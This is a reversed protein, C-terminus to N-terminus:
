AGRKGRLRQIHDGVSMKQKAQSRVPPNPPYKYASKISHLAEHESLGLSLARPLLDNEARAQEYGYDNYFRACVHVTHNRGKGFLHGREIFDLVKQPLRTDVIEAPIPRTIGHERAGGLHAWRKEFDAYHFRAGEIGDAVECVVGGREPKTNVSGPLRMIRALEAVNGDGGCGVAMGKLTRKVNHRNEDTIVLPEHLVWYAHFGGGSSVIMTPPCLGWIRWYADESNDDLDVYLAPLYLADIETGRQYHTYTRGKDSTRQEAPKQAKRVAVGFHVGYGKQNFEQARSGEYHIEPLPLPLWDIRIRPYLRADDPALYAVELWGDPINGFLEHLFEATNM